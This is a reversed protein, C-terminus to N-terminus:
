VGYPFLDREPIIKQYNQIADAWELENLCYVWSRDHHAAQLQQSVCQCSNTNQLGISRNGYNWTRKKSPNVLLDINEFFWESATFNPYITVRDM